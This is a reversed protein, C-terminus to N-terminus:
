LNANQITRKGKILEQTSSVPKGSAARNNRLYFVKIVLAENTISGNPQIETEKFMELINISFAFM